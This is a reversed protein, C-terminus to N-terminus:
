LFLFSEGLLLWCSTMGVSSWAMQCRGTRASKMKFCWPMDQNACSEKWTEKKMNEKTPIWKQSATQESTKTTDQAARASDASCGAHSRLLEPCSMPFWWFVLCWSDLGHQVLLRWANPIAIFVMCFPRRHWSKGQKTFAWSKKSVFM